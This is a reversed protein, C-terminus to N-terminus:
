LIRLGSVRFVAGGGDGPTYEIEWQQALAIQRVVTLGLGTGQESTTFYPRFIEEVEGDPVGPGNDRIELRAEERSVREVAVEIRGGEGVAHVANLLLNFVVQRLLSQDSEITLDPGTSAIEISKEERDSELTRIVDEVVAMIPTPSPVVEPPKSYDIFQNLRATVRDVEEAIELSADRIEQPADSSKSVIQALGRIINLPNRTEHALGAAAINMEKLHLNTHKARALRSRLEASQESKRWAAALGLAAILAIATSTLRLGRDRSVTSELSETSLDLVFYHVGKEEALKAFEEESMRPPRGSFSRGGRFRRTEGSAGSSEFAERRRRREQRAEEDLTGGRARFGRRGRPMEGEPRVIATAAGTDQADAGLAVLTAVTVSDKNWRDWRDALSEPDFDIPSGASAVVEGAENLLAVSILESSDTLEVLAAELRPQPVMSFRRQSRIVVSLTTSIDDARNLLAARASDQVRGHELYQWACVTIWAAALLLYTINSRRIAM